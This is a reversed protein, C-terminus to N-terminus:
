EAWESPPDGAAFSAASEAAGDITNPLKTPKDNSYDSKHLNEVRWRWREVIKWIQPIHPNFEDTKKEIELIKIFFPGNKSSNWQFKIPAVRTRNNLDILIGSKANNIVLFDYFAHFTYNFLFMTGGQGASDNRRHVTISQHCISFFKIKMKM